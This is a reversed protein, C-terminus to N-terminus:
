LTLIWPGKIPSCVVGCFIIFCSSKSLLFMFLTRLCLCIFLGDAARRCSDMKTVSLLTVDVELVRCFTFFFIVCETFSPLLEPFGTASM